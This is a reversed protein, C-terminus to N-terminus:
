REEEDDAEQESRREAAFARAAEDSPEHGTVARLFDDRDLALLRLDSTATVTATRPVDDLLAIEGFCSGPGESAIVRGGVDVHVTGEVIAYFRDGHPDGERDGENRPVRVGPHPEARGARPRARSSSRLDPNALLEMEGEPIRVGVDLETLRHRTLLITLPLLLGAVVLTPRTGITVVLLSAVFSGIGEGAMYLSELVGFARSLHKDPILRQLM